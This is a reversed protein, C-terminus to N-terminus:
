GGIAELRQTLEKIANVLVPVLMGETMKLYEPDSADVIVPNDGEIALVSQAPFGFRRRAGEEPEDSGREKRFVFEITELQNVFDLGYPVPGNILKERVDSTTITSTKCYLTSTNNNGLVVNNSSNTINALADAGSSLGLLVNNSGSTVNSGAGQGLACNNNGGNLGLLAQLGIATNNIGTTNALLVFNGVGTNGSANANAALAQSGVATNNGSTNARLANDGVAVNNTGSLNNTLANHGVATNPTGTTNKALAQSGVATNNSATSAALANTGVAVNLGGDAAAGAGQGIAVSTALGGAGTGVTLGHITQDTAFTNHTGTYAFDDDTCAADFQAKTSLVAVWATGNWVKLAPAAPATTDMWLDGAKPSAPATPSSGIGGSGGVTAWTTGNFIKLVAPTSSSDFWLAGATPSAPAVTATTLGQADLVTIMRNLKEALTTGTDVNSDCPWDGAQFISAM